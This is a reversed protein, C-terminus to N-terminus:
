CVILYHRFGTFGFFGFVFVVSLLGSIASPLFIEVCNCGECRYLRLFPRLDSKNAPRIFFIFGEVNYGVDSFFVAVTRNVVRSYFQLRVLVRFSASPLTCLLCVYRCLIFDVWRGVFYCFDFCMSRKAVWRDMTRTLLSGANLHRVNAFGRLSIRFSFQVSKVSLFDSALVGIFILVSIGGSNQRESALVCVAFCIRRTFPAIIM